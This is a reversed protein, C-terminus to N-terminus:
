RQPEQPRPPPRQEVTVKKGDKNAQRDRASVAVGIFGRERHGFAAEKAKELGTASLFIAVALAKIALQSVPKQVTLEEVGYTFGLHQDFLPSIVVVPNPRVAGEAQPITGV